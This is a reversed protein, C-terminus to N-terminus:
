PTDLPIGGHPISADKESATWFSAFSLMSPTRPQAPAADLDEARQAEERGARVFEERMPIVMLAPYMRAEPLSTAQSWKAKFAAV